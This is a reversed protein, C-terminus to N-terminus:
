LLFAAAWNSLAESAAEPHALSVNVIVSKKGPIIHPIAKIYIQLASDM